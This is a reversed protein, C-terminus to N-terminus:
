KANSHICHLRRGVAAPGLRVILHLIPVTQRKRPLIAALLREIGEIFRQSKQLLFPAALSKSDDFEIGTMGSRDM